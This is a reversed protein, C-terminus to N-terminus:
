GKVNVEYMRVGDSIRSRLVGSRVLATLARVTRARDMSGSDYIASGIAMIREVPLSASWMARFVQRVITREQSWAESMPELLLGRAERELTSFEYAM